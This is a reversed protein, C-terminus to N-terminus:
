WTLTLTDLVLSKGDREFKKNEKNRPNTDREKESHLCLPHKNDYKESILSWKEDDKDRGM